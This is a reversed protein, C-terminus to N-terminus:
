KEYKEPNNIEDIKREAMERWDRDKRAEDFYKKARTKNRRGMEAMGFELWGGGFKRNLDVCSQSASTANDWQKLQNYADKYGGSRSTQDQVSQATRAKAEIEDAFGM